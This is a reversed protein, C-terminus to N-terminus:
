KAKARRSQKGKSHTKSSNSHKKTKVPKTTIKPLTKDLAKAEDLKGSKNLVDVLYRKHEIVIPNNSGFNAEFITIAKKYYDEADSYMKRRHQLAALAAESQAVKTDNRGEESEAMTIAYKYIEIATDPHNKFTAKRALDM